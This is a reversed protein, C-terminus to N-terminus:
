EHSRRNSIGHFMTEMLWAIEEDIPPKREEKLREMLVGM